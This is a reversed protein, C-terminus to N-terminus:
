SSGHGNPGSECYSRWRHLGVLRRSPSHALRHDIQRGASDIRRCSCKACGLM